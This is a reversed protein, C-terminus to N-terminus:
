CRVSRRWSRTPRPSRPWAAAWAPPGYYADVFGPDRQEAELALRVYDRAIADLSDRRPAQAAAPLAALLALATLVTPRFM